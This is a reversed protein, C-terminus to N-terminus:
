EGKYDGGPLRGCKVVMGNLTIPDLAIFLDCTDVALLNLKNMEHGWCRM